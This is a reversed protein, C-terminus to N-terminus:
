PEVARGRILMREREPERLLDAILHEERSAGADSWSPTKAAVASDFVRIRLMEAERHRARLDRVLRTLEADSLGPEVVAIFLRRAGEGGSGGADDHAAVLRYPVESWREGAYKEQLPYDITTPMRALLEPSEGRGQARLDDLSVRPTEGPAEPAAAPSPETSEVPEPTAAPPLPRAPRDPHRERGGVWLSVGALLMVGIAVVSASEVRTM